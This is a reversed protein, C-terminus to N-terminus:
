SACRGCAREHTVGPFRDLLGPEQNVLEVKGAPAVRSAAECQGHLVACDTM